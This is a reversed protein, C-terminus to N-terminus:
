VRVPILAIQRASSQRKFRASIRRARAWSRRPQIKGREPVPPMLMRSRRRPQHLGGSGHLVQACAGGAFSRAASGIGARTAVKEAAARGAGREESM